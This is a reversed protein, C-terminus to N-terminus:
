ELLRMEGLTAMSVMSWGDGLVDSAAGVWFKDLPSKLGISGKMIQKAKSSTKLEEDGGTNFVSEQLGLVM